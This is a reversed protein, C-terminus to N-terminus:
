LGLQDFVEQLENVGSNFYRFTTSVALKYEKSIAEMEMGKIYRAILLRGYFPTIMNIYIEAQNRTEYFGKTEEDIEHELDIIRAITQGMVDVNKTHSVQEKDMPASLSTLSEHLRQVREQNIKIRESVDRISELYKRANM